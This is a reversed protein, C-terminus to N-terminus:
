GRGADKWLKCHQLVIAEVGFKQATREAVISGLEERKSPSLKSIGVALATLEDISEAVGLMEGVVDAIGGTEVAAVLVRQSLAEIIVNPFSETRSPVVLIGIRSYFDTTDSVADLVAARDPDCGGELLAGRIANQLRSIEPGAIIFTWAPAALLIDRVLGPLLDAGKHWHNRGIFGFVQPRATDSASITAVGNPIVLTKVGRALRAHAKLATDSNYVVPIRYYRAGWLALRASLRSLSGLSRIDGHRCYFFVRTNRPCFMRAVLAILWSHYMWAVVIPAKARRAERRIAVLAGFTQFCWGLKVRAATNALSVGRKGGVLPIIVQPHGIKELESSLLELQKEAGGIALSNIVHITEM